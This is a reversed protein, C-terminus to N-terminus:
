DSVPIVHKIHLSFTNDFNDIQIYTPTIEIYAKGSFLKLCLKIFGLGFFIIGVWGVLRYFSDTDKIM